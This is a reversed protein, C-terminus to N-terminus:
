GKKNYETLCRALDKAKVLGEHTLHERDHMMEVLQAFLEFATRKRGFLQHERFFPIVKDHLDALRSVRYKVHPRWGKAEYGKYRGFDLEYISGCGLHSKVEELVERDDCRM